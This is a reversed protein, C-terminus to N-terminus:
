VHVSYMAHLMDDAEESLSYLPQDKAFNTYVQAFFLMEAQTSVKVMEPKGLNCLATTAEKVMEPTPPEHNVTAHLPVLKKQDGPNFGMGLFEGTSQRIIGLPLSNVQQLVDALPQTIDIFTGPLKDWFIQGM